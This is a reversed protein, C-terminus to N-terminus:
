FRQDAVRQTREEFRVQDNVGVHNVRAFSLLRDRHGARESYVVLLDQLDTQAALRTRVNQQVHRVQLGNHVANHLQDFADVSLLFVAFRTQDVFPRCTHEWFQRVRELVDIQVHLDSASVQNVYAFIILLDCDAITQVFEFQAECRNQCHLFRTVQLNM